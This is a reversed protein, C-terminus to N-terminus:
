PLWPPAPKSARFTISLRRRRPITIGDSRDNKRRPIGHQWEYRGEDNLVLLSRPMLLLSERRGDAKRRFDMVCPSLLSLSVITRDFPEYDTHLAIGQGPLYENVLMHDFPRDGIGEQILREALSQGWPPIPPAATAHLGYGAGYPQRRREWTSDWPASDIAAALKREDKETLYDPIYVLGPIRPVQEAECQIPFLTAM